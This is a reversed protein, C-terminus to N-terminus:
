PKIVSDLTHVSETAEMILGYSVHDFTKFVMLLGIREDPLKVQGPDLIVEGPATQKDKAFNVIPKGDKDHSVDFNLESLKPKETKISDAKPAIYESDKIVRGYRNIALVHGVELGDLSGRNLSVVSNPGAEAIGGYVKIIRGVINLDPAHPVFNTQLSDPASILRDKIFIEEKARIIDATAPTGFKTIKADGLYVAETGLTKNTDPDILPDGLRYVFWNAGQNQALENVYIRTGPSLVVRDDQGAIIRPAKDLQGNEILLPQSLFPTIVNPAISLIPKKELPEIVVGPQLTVKEHLLRLKPQGSTTDLVVVDGPYIWHPNKIEARNMNWIKPWLWPNKLFKGSISWLTDGKVVVYREPHDKQLQLEDAYSNLSVCCFVLLTIIRTM